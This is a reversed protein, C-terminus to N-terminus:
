DKKVKKTLTLQYEKGDEGIVFVKDKEVAFRVSENVTMPVPKSWRWRLRQEAHYVVEPAEIIFVQYTRRVAAVAAGSAVAGVTETTRESERWYGSQWERKSQASFSAIYCTLVVCVTAVFRRDRM